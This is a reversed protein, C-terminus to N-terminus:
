DHDWEHDWDHRRAGEEADDIAASLIFVGTPIGDRQEDEPQAWGVLIETMAEM